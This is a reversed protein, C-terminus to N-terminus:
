EINKWKVTKLVEEARPLFDDFKKAPASIDIVVLEGNVKMIVFRDKDGAFSVVEGSVDSTPFLPVCSSQEGCPDLHPKKPKYCRGDGPKSCYEVDIAKEANKGVVNEANKGVKVKDSKSTALQPHSRFWSLWKKVNQPASDRKLKSM